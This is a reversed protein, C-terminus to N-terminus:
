LEEVHELSSFHKDIANLTEQDIEIAGVLKPLSYDLEKALTTDSEATENKLTGNEESEIKGSGQDLNFLQSKMELCSKLDEENRVKNLKDMLESIASLRETRWNKAKKSAKNPEEGDNPENVDSDLACDPLKKLGEDIIQQIIMRVSDSRRSNSRLLLKLGSVMMENENETCTPDSELATSADDEVPKATLIEELLDVNQMYRELAENELEINRDKYERLKSFRWENISAADKKTLPKRSRLSVNLNNFQVFSNSLQRLSAARSSSTSPSPESSQQEIPAGSSAAKDPFTANAKLVHIHCPNQNRSCCSKCCEFPCRSRAVNGCQRCKPKNHGRQSKPPTDTRHGLNAAAALSTPKTTATSEVMMGKTSNNNLAPSAAAM